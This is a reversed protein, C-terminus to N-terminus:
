ELSEPPETIQPSHGTMKDMIELLNAVDIPKEMMYCRLGQFAYTSARERIEEIPLGSTVIIPINRWTPDSRMMRAIDLGSMQHEGLHIDLLVIDTKESVLLRIAGACTWAMCVTHGAKTLLREMATRNPEEDEVVLVYM